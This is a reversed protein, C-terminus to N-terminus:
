KANLLTSMQLIINQKWDDLIKKFSESDNRFVKSSLEITLFPFLLLSYFNYFLIQLPIKKLRGDNMEEQISRVVTRMMDIKNIAKFSDIILEPDRNIERLMFLPLHPDKSFIEYYADIIKGLREEICKEKDTMSDFFKPIISATISGLVAEFMKDKTRFYYHLAPRNIGARSAIESMSTEVYGRDIFVERAADIIKNEM